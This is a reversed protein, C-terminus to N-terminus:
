PMHLCNVMSGLALSLKRNRQWAIITILMDLEAQKRAPGSNPRLVDRPLLLDLNNFARFQGEIAVIRRRTNLYNKYVIRM